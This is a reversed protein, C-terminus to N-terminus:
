TTRQQARRKEEAVCRRLIYGAGYIMRVSRRLRFRAQDEDLVVFARIQCGAIVLPRDGIDDYGTM